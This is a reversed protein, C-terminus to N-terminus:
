KKYAKKLDKLMSLIDDTKKNLHGINVQMRDIEEQTTKLKEHVKKDKKTFFKKIQDILGLWENEDGGATMDNNSVFVMYKINEM